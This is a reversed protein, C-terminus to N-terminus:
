PKRLEELLRDIERSDVPALEDALIDMLRTEVDSQRMARGLAAIAGAMWDDDVWRVLVFGRASMDLPIVNPSAWAPEDAETMKLEPPLPEDWGRAVMWSQVDQWGLRAFGRAVVNSPDTM